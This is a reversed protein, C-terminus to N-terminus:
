LSMVFYIVLFILAKLSYLISIFSYGCLRLLSCMRVSAACLPFQTPISYASAKLIIRIIALSYSNMTTNFLTFKIGDNNNIALEILMPGVAVGTIAVIKTDSKASKFLALILMLNFSITTSQRTKIISGIGM